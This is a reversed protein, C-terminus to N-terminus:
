PQHSIALDPDSHTGPRTSTMAPGSRRPDHLDRDLRAMLLETFRRGATKWNLNARYYTFANLATQFYFRRDTALRRLIEVYPRADEEPAFLFGTVGDIVADGVGGVRTAISPLAFAAAEAFVVGFCEARTPVLLVDCQAFCHRWRALDFANAKNLHGIIKVGPPPSGGFPDCGVVWLEANIWQQRLRNLIEVALAGGKRDWDRGVFLLRFPTGAKALVVAQAEASSSFGAACNAGFPIVSVKDPDANYYQIADNAAWQSAYALFCARGIARGELYHGQRISDESIDSYGPYVGM